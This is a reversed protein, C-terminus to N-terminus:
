GMLKLTCQLLVGLVRFALDTISVCRYVRIEKGVWRIERIYGFITYSRFKEKCHNTGCALGRSLFSLVRVFRKPPLGCTSATAQGDPWNDVNKTFQAM